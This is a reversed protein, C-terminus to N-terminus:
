SDVIMPRDKNTPSMLAAQALPALRDFEGRTMQRGGAGNGSGSHRAGSGSSGTGKLVQDRAPDNMVLHAVAEEFDAPDGFKTSSNIVNGAADRAVIRGDEVTFHKGLKAQLFDVPIAVKEAIFKSRAFAGGIKEGFLETKFKDREATTAALQDQFQKTTATVKDGAARELSAKMEEVQAATKLEGASLNKVTDLAKKAAVPDEIGEFGKLKADAAEKAERYGKVEANRSAVASRLHPVDVAIEAGGDEVFVPKGDQVEAYTKGGVDVTKLKM